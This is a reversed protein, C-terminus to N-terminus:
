EERVAVGQILGILGEQFSRVSNKLMAQSDAGLLIHVGLTSRSSAMNARATQQAIADATQDEFAAIRFRAATLKACTAEATLLASASPEKAWPLPFHAIGGSGAVVDAFAYRGGPRLVRRIEAYLRDRDAINMVVNQSWVVDFSQDAFPMALADGQRYEVGDALGTREALMTAVSCFEPTLDLGMVRCGFTKALYRSPGGIGCGLDLVRDHANPLLLQALDVTAARGRTHFEDIPSLDDLALRNIDKGAAKLADLITEGIGARSGYHAVIALRNAM